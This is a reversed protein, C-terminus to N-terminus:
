GYFFDFDSHRFMLRRLWSAASEQHMKNINQQDSTGSMNWAKCSLKSTVVGFAPLVVKGDQPLTKDSELCVRLGFLR